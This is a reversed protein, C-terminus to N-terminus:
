GYLYLCIAVAGTIGALDATLAAAMTHRVRRVQVAGFYVALVYFTTETSGQFTSVLFGTYSDPGIAPDNIISALIGYAGSGSLPRLLAMPLAEAPLGVAGTLPGLVSVMADLAGSARFMGVAVLIAVLYPIIKVAVQFGEKAGEVFVEYIRVRRIAGFGIFGMMLGPIIWPSVVRGYFITLPILSLAVCVALLSIWAPYAGADGGEEPLNSDNEGSVADGAIPPPSTGRAWWSYLRAAIVATITSCLTAFLTTPLIGAPDMSGAAARLAIVGTPLLTVNSTNIALFLAMADTATGPRSNLTNLEKMAKIGFPTAANGLGLGNAAVNLIMAGMAPHDAPVQPFLRVMIPRILRALVVMMGGAEVVKVLGLFLTMVGVLGLALEVSGAASDIMAKSLSAMASGDPGPIDFIQHWATTLFAVLVIVLFVANM